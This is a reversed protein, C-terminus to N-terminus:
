NWKGLDGLDLKPLPSRWDPAPTNHANMLPGRLAYRLVDELVDRSSSIAGSLQLVRDHALAVMQKPTASADSRSEARTSSRRGIDIIVGREVTQGNEDTTTHRSENAVM